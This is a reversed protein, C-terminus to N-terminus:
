LSKHLLRLRLIRFVSSYFLTLIKCYTSSFGFKPRTWISNIWLYTESLDIQIKSQRVLNLYVSSLYSVTQGVAPYAEIKMYSFSLVKVKFRLGGRHDVPPQHIFKCISKLICINISCFFGLLFFFGIYLLTFSCRKTLISFCKIHM